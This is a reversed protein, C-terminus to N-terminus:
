KDREGGIFEAGRTKRLVLHELAEKLSLVEALHAGYSLHQTHTVHFADCGHAPTATSTALNGM